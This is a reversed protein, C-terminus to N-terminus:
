NRKTKLRHLEDKLILLHEELTQTADEVVRRTDLDAIYISERVAITMAKEVVPHRMYRNSQTYMNEFIKEYVSHDSYRPKIWDVRMKRKYKISMMMWAELYLRIDTHLNKEDDSFQEWKKKESGTIDRVAWASLTKLLRSNFSRVIVDYVLQEQCKIKQPARCSDGRYSAPIMCAYASELSERVLSVGPNGDELEATLCKAELDIANGIKNSLEKNFWWGFSPVIVASSLIPIVATTVDNLNRGSALWLSFYLVAVSSFALFFAKVVIGKAESIATDRATIAAKKSKPVSSRHTMYDTSQLVLKM